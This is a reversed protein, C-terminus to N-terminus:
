LMHWTEEQEKDRLNLLVWSHFDENFGKKGLNMNVIYQWIAKARPCARLVHDVDEYATECGACFPNDTLGRKARNINTM